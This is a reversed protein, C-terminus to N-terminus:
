DKGDSEKIEKLFSKVIEDGFVARIQRIAGGNEKRRWFEFFCRGLFVFSEDIDLWGTNDPCNREKAYVINTEDELDYIELSYTNHRARFYFADKGIHGFAQVPCNGSIELKIHPTGIFTFYAGILKETETKAM